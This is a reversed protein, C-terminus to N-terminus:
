DDRRRTIIVGVDDFTAAIPAHPKHITIRVESVKPYRDLLADAVTGAAAEILRHRRAGFTDVVFDVMSGYNITDALKDSRSAPGLDATLAIDLKFVQGVRAEHALAGHFAHIALGSVFITDTASM